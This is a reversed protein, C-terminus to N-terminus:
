GAAHDSSGRACTVVVPPDTERIAAGIRCLQPRANDLFRAVADPIEAVELAMKTQRVVLVQGSESEGSNGYAERPAMFIGSRITM